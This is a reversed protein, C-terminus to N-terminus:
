NPPDVYRIINWALLMNAYIGLSDPATEEEPVCCLSRQVVAIIGSYLDKVFDPQMIESATDEMTSAIMNLLLLLRRGDDIDTLRFRLQAISTKLFLIPGDSGPAFAQQVLIPFGRTYEDGPYAEYLSGILLRFSEITRRPHPEAYGYAWCHMMLCSLFRDQSISRASLTYTDAHPRSQRTIANYECWTCM